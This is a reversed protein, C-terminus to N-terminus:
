TSTGLCARSSLFAHGLDLDRSRDDLHVAVLHGADDPLQDLVLQDMGVEIEIELVVVEADLRAVLGVVLDGDVRCVRRLLVADGHLARRDRRVFRAHLLEAELFHPLARVARDAVDEAAGDEALGDDALVHRAEHRAPCLREHDATMREAILVARRVELEGALARDRQLENTLVPLDDLLFHDLRRTRADCHGHEVVVLRNAVERAGREVVAERAVIGDVERRLVRDELDIVSAELVDELFHEVRFELGLEVLALERVLVAQDVVHHRCGELPRATVDPGALVVVAVHLGVRRRLAEAREAEHGGHEHRRVALGALGLGRVAGNRAVVALVLLAALGRGVGHGRDKGPCATEGM